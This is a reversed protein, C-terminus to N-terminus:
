GPSNTSVLCQLMAAHTYQRRRNTILHSQEKTAQVGYLLTKIRFENVSSNLRKIQSLSKCAFGELLQINEDSIEGAKLSGFSMQSM